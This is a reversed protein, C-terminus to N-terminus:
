GAWSSKRMLRWAEKGDINVYRMASKIDRDGLFRQLLAVDKYVKWSRTAAPAPRALAPSTIASPHADTGVCM